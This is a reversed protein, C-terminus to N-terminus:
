GACRCGPLAHALYVLSVNFTFFAGAINEGVKAKRIRFFVQRFGSKGHLDNLDDPLAASDLPPQRDVHGSLAPVAEDM